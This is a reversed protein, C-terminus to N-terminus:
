FPQRLAPTVAILVNLAVLAGVFTVVGSTSQEFDTLPLYNTASLLMRCELLVVLAFEIADGITLQQQRRSLFSIFPVLAVATLADPRTLVKDRTM